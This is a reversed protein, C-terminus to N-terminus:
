SQEDTKLAIRLILAFTAVCRTNLVDVGLKEAAAQIDAVEADDVVEGMYYNNVHGECRKGITLTSEPQLSYIHDELKM